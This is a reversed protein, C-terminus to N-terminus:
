VSIGEKEAVLKNARLLSKFTGADTWWGKLIDFGDKIPEPKYDKLYEYDM